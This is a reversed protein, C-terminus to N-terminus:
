LMRRLLNTEIDDYSNILYITGWFYADDFTYPLTNETYVYQSINEYNYQPIWYVKNNEFWYRFDIQLIQDGGQKKSELAGALGIFYDEYADALEYNISSPIILQLVSLVDSAVSFISLIQGLLSFVIGTSNFIIDITADNSYANNKYEHIAPIITECFDFLANCFENNWFLFKAYLLDKKGKNLIQQVLPNNATLNASMTESETAMCPAIGEPKWDQVWMIGIDAYPRNEPISYYDSQLRTSHYEIDLSYPEQDNWTADNKSFVEIVVTRADASSFAIHEDLSGTKCSSSVFEANKLSGNSDNAITYLNLDYDCGSPVSTLDVTIRGSGLLCFSYFDRDTHQIWLFDTKRTITAYIGFGTYSTTPYGYALIAPIQFAGELSDNNTEYSDNYSALSVGNNPSYEIINGNEDQFEALYDVGYVPNHTEFPDGSNSDYIRRTDKLKHSLLCKEQYNTKKEAAKLILPSSDFSDCNSKLQQSGLISTCFIGVILCYIAKKM